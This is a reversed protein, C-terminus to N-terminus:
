ARRVTAEMATFWAEKEEPTALLEIWGLSRQFQLLEGLFKYVAADASQRQAFATNQADLLTVISVSGHEYKDQVVALNRAALEAARHSLGIAAYASEAAYLAAQTQAMVGDRAGARSSELQRLEARSKRTDATLSGGTFLPISATVSVSWDNRDPAGPGSPTVGAYNQSLTHSLDASAAVRPVFKRREKQRVTLQQVKVNQELALLDPSHDVAYAAAFSRFRELMPRDKVFAIVRGTTFGFAPDDLGADRTQWRMGTDVGLIRNLAVRARDVDTRAAILDARQEAALSEFRYGEEPGSTGVRQRLRALELNRQTVQFNEEVVRLAAQAALLQLYAQGADNATDLREIEELFGAGKRAERATRVRTVTEDDVIAQSVSVGARHRTEPQAGGSAAARDSDIQSFNQYASVQPLLAGKAGREGQRAAETAAQQAQLDHNQAIAIQVAEVLSIPRGVEVAGEAYVTADTLVAFDAAVGIKNATGENYFLQPSLTVRLPLTELPTGAILQDLNVALRRTLATRPNPLLGALAGAEVETQGLLSLVPLRRAALGQLLRNRAAEDLRLSPMLLVAKADSGVAALAADADAAVPVLTVPVNLRRSLSDRWTALAAADSAFFEDVLVHLSACPVVARLAQLQDAASTPLAVVAFNTKTSHGAADLPLALLDTEQMLAGLVPKALSAKAAATSVRIGFTVVYDVAPDALAAQLAADAREGNWGANFAASDKFTLEARNTSLALAEARFAKDTSDVLWSNGDKVVAVTVARAHATAVVSTFLALVFLCRLSLPGPLRVFPLAPLSPSLM